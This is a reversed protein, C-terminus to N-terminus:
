QCIVAGVTNSVKGNVIVNPSGESKCGAVGTNFHVMPQGEIVVNPIIEYSSPPCTVVDALKLAPKGNFVVSAAGTKACDPIEQAYVTTISLYSVVLFGILNDM